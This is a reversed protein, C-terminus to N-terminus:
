GVLCSAGSTSAMVAARWIRRARPRCIMGTDQRDCGEQPVWMRAIAPLGHLCFRFMKRSEVLYICFVRGQFIEVEDPIHQNSFSFEIRLGPPNGSRNGCDEFGEEGKGADSTWM